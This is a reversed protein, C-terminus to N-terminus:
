QVFAAVLGTAGSDHPEPNQSGVIIPENASSEKLSRQPKEPESVPSQRSAPKQAAPHEVSLTEKRTSRKTQKGASVAAVNGGSLATFLWQKLNENRKGDEARTNIMDFLKRDDDKDLNLRV